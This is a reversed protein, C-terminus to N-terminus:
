LLSMVKGGEVPFCHGTIFSASDSLLFIAAKAVEEVKAIRGMPYTGPFHEMYGAYGEGAVQEGSPAQSGDSGGTFRHLMPSDEIASPCVCNIRINSQGVEIAVSRTMAQIAGNAASYAPVNPHGGLGIMSSVNVIAGPKCEAKFHRIQHKMGLFASKAKINICHDFMEETSNELPGPPTDEQGLNNVVLDFGGFRPDAVITEHLSVIAAEKTADMKVFLVEGGKDAIKAATREGQHKTRGTIVVKVGLGALQEAIEAGLGRTGGNIVAVKGAFSGREM